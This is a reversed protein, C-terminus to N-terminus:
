VVPIAATSSISLSGSNLSLTNSGSYNTSGASSISFPGASQTVSGIGNTVTIGTYDSVVNGNYTGNKGGTSSPPIIPYANNLYAGLFGPNNNWFFPQRFNYINSQSYNKAWILNGNTIDIAFIRSNGTNGAVVYVYKSDVSVEVSGGFISTKNYTKSWLTTGSSNHAIVYINNYNEGLVSYTNGSTDSTRAGDTMGASPNAFVFNNYLTGSSNISAIAVAQYTSTNYKPIHFSYDNGITNNGVFGYGTTTTNYFFVNGFSSNLKAVIGNTDCLYINGSSDISILAPFYGNSNYRQSVTQNSNTISSPFYFIGNGQVSYINGNYYALNGYSVGSYYLSFQYTGSSNFKNIWTQSVTSDSSSIWLNSSSDSCGGNTYTNNNAISLDLTLGPLVSASSAGFGYGKATANGSTVITPM